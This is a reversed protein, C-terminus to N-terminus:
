CCRVSTTLVNSRAIASECRHTALLQRGLQPASPAQPFPSHALEPHLCLRTDAQAHPSTLRGQPGKPSKSRPGVGAQALDTHSVLRGRDPLANLCHPLLLEPHTVFHTVAPSDCFSNWSRAVAPPHSSPLQGLCSVLKGSLFGVRRWCVEWRFPQLRWHLPLCLCVATSLSAGQGRWATSDLFHLVEPLM